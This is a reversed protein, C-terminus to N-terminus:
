LNIEETKYQLELTIYTPIYWSVWSRKRLINGKFWM